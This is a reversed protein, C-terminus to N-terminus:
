SRGTTIRSTERGLLPEAARLKSLTELWESEPQSDAVIGAGVSYDLLGDAISGPERGPAGTILATRIAVNFTASGSDSVIGIAGFAPGRAVPELESIIQMARIKPCGTISGAPFAGALLDAITRDPALRSSVTAVGQLLRGGHREIARADEVRMSGIEATRGLDNRVLDVIMALEARSKADSLPEAGSPTAEAEGMLATGKMPRSVVRRTAADFSLFLEPSLSCVHRRAGPEDWELWAGYWPHANQLLRLMADRPAGQTDATMRHALNVQYIDGEAIYEIARAVARSYADRGMESHISGVRFAREGRTGTHIRPIRDIDGARTWQGTAADHVLAGRCRLWVAAPWRRDDAPESHSRRAAPELRTGADYSILGIWAPLDFPIKPDGHARTSAPLLDAPGDVANLPIVRTEEPEFLISRRSWQNRADQGHAAGHATGHSASLLAALPRDSPWARAVDVPRAGALSPESPVAPANSMPAPDYLGGM